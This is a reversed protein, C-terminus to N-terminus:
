VRHIILHNLGYILVVNLSSKTLFNDTPIANLKLRNESQALLLKKLDYIPQPM